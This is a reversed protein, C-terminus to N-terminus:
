IFQWRPLWSGVITVGTSTGSATTVTASYGNVQGAPAYLNPFTGGMDYQTGNADKVTWAGCDITIVWHTAAALNGPFNITLTEGSMTNALKFASIPVGNGVPIDLTFTPQAWVSGAYTINFTTATGPAVSGALATSGLTAATQDQFWPNRCYFELDGSWRYPPYRRMMKWSATGKLKVLIQSSNDTTLWQEGAQAIAALAAGIKTGPTEDYQMPFKLVKGGFDDSLYAGRGLYALQGTGLVRQIGPDLYDQWFWSALDNLNIFSLTGQGNPLANNGFKLIPPTGSFTPQAV